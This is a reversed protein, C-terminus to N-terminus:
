FKTSPRNSYIPEDDEEDKKPAKPDNKPKNKILDYPKQQKIPTGFVDWSQEVDWNAKLEILKPYYYTQEPQQKKGYNGTTFKKDGDKDIVLRVYYKGPKVFPFEAGGNKVTAYRVPTDKTDLLEAFAGSNVGITEIYLNSYDSSKKVKFDVIISDNSIGYISTACASDLTLTYKKDFDWKHKVYYKRPSLSDNELKWDKIEITTSDIKTKLSIMDRNLYSLPAEFSISPTAYIDITGPISEKIALTEVKMTDAKARRGRRQTASADNNSSKNSSFNGRFIFNLTDSAPIINLASDTKLYDAVVILTDLNYVLSDKIWFTLSDNTINRETIAWDDSAKFNVPTLSTTKKIAGSIDITLKERDTRNYKSLYLPKLGENFSFIVLSDPMFRTINHVMITDIVTRTTDSYITDTHSTVEATPIIVEEYFAIDETPANFKYNRDADKVAYLKYRGESLNRITFNGYIDSKTVRSFPITTFATDNDAPHLGITIGTVPELDSANLITGSIQLTDLVKGTSFAISFDNLINGENNDKISSGFDITYSTNPLLSDILEIDIRKLNAKIKPMEKQPPSIIVNEGPSSLQIVEDFDLTLKKSNVETQNPNPNSKKFVPPTYDRPGGSPTGMSACSAIIITTVIASVARAINNVRNKKM